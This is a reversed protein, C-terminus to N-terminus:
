AKVALVVTDLAGDRDLVEAVDIRLGELAAV